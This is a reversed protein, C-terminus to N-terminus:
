SIDTVKGIFIIDETDNNIIVFAFPRNLIVERKTEEITLTELNEKNINSIKTGKEGITITNKQIFKSIYMPNETFKTFNAKETFIDNINYNSLLNILNTEYQFSFQPLGVLVSDKKRSNILSNLNLSSLSFEGTAKPLIGVFSYKSNKFDKIFGTAYENEIFTANTSYMMNVISVKNDFKYFEKSTTSNIKFPVEWEYDFYLSNVMINNNVLDNEEVVRSINNDTVEKIKNNIYNLSEKQSNFDIATIPINYNQTQEIFEEKITKENLINNNFIETYNTLKNSIQYTDYNDLVEDLLGKLSYENIIKEKENLTYNKIVEEAINNKNYLCDYTLSIKKLLLQLDSKENTSLSNIKNLNLENYEKTKFEEIYTEYLKKYNDSLTIPTNQNNIKNIIEENLEKSNKKFYNKLEKNSNNDTGNYLYALSTNINFPSIIINSNNDLYDILNASTNASYLSGTFYKDEEKNNSRKKNYITGIIISSAFLFIITILLAIKPRTAKRSSSSKKTSAKM